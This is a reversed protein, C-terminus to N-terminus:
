DQPTPSFYLFFSDNIITTQIRHSAAIGETDTTKLFDYKIETGKSRTKKQRKQVFVLFLYFKWWFPENKVFIPFKTSIKVKPPIM